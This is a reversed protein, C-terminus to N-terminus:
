TVILNGRRRSKESEGSYRALIALRRKKRFHLLALAMMVIVVLKGPNYHEFFYPVVRLNVLFFYVELINISLLLGFSLCAAFFPFERVSSVLVARYLKYFLYHIM